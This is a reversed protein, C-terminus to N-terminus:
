RTATVLYHTALNAVQRSAIANEYLLYARMVPRAFSFYTAGVFLPRIDADGWPTFIRELASAYCQNYYAPFVPTNAEKRHMIPEVIRKGLKHPLVKNVIGFASWSGSFLAVFTGGPRLYLRVNEITQRLDRVHELVQWSIVLDFRDVLEGQLVTADAEVAQTYAEPGAAVLEDGSLDLGVYEVDVPRRDAPVAPHRGSGIDLVSAGPKLRAYIPEEFPDRWRSRYRAPLLPDVSGASTSTVTM